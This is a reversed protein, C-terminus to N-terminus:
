EGASNVAIFLGSQQDLKQFVVLRILLFRVVLFVDAPIDGRLWVKDETVRCTGKESQSFCYDASMFSLVLLHPPDKTHDARSKSVCM